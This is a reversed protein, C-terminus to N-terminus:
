PRKQLLDFFGQEIESLQASVGLDVAGVSTELVCEGAKLLDDGSLTVGAKQAERFVEGWQMVDASPVRVVASSGDAVKELAVRVAATLLLPDLTVERHLVRAAIALALKVVEPEVGAFYRAREASFQECSRLVAEREVAVRRECEEEWAEDAERRAEQKAAEIQVAIREALAEEDPATKEPLCAEEDAKMDETEVETSGANEHGLAFFELRSIEKRLSRADMWRAPLGAPAVQAVGDTVVQESPLSM